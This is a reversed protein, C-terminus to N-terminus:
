DVPDIFNEQQRMRQSFAYIHEFHDVRYGASPAATISAFLAIDAISLQGGVLFDEQSLVRDVQKFARMVLWPQFFQEALANPQALVHKFFRPIGIYKALQNQEFFLWELINQQASNNTPMLQTDKAYHWLIAASERYVKSGDEVFPIGQFPNKEFVVPDISLKHVLDVEITEFPINLFHFLLRIKYGNHSYKFDYLKIM